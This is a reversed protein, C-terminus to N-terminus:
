PSTVEVENSQCAPCADVDGDLHCGLAHRLELIELDRCEIELVRAKLQQILGDVIVDRSGEEIM